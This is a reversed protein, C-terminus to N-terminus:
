YIRRAEFWFVGDLGSKLFAVGAKEAEEYSVYGIASRDPYSLINTGVHGRKTLRKYFIFWM